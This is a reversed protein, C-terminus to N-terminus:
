KYTLLYPSMRPAKPNLNHDSHAHFFISAFKISFCLFRYATDPALTIDAPSTKDSASQTRQLLAAENKVAVELTYVFQIASLKRADFGRRFISYSVLDDAPIGLRKLIAAKLADDTHDLPLKIESLRLM